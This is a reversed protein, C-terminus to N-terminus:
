ETSKVRHQGKAQNKQHEGNAYQKHYLRHAASQAEKFIKITEKTVWIFLILSYTNKIVERSDKLRFPLARINEYVISYNYLKKKMSDFQLYDLLLNSVSVFKNERCFHAIIAEFTKERTLINDDNRAACSCDKVLLKTM